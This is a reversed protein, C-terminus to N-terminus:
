HTSLLAQQESKNLDGSNSQLDSIHERIDKVKTMPESFGNGIAGKTSELYGLTQEM